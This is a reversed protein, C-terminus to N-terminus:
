TTKEGLYIFYLLMNGTKKKTTKRSFFGKIVRSFAKAMLFILYWKSFTKAYIIFTKKKKALM